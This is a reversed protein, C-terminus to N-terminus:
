IDESPVSDSDGDLALASSSALNEESFEEDGETTVSSQACDVLEITELSTENDESDEGFLAFGGEVEFMITFEFSDEARIDASDGPDVLRAAVSVNVFKSRTLQTISEASDHVIM